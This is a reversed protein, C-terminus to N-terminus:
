PSPMLKHHFRTVGEAFSHIYNACNLIAVHPQTLQFYKRVWRRQLTALLVCFSIHCPQSVLVQKSTGVPLRSIRTTTITTYQIPSLFPGVRPAGQVAVVVVYYNGVCGHCPQERLVREGRGWYWLFCVLYCFLLLLCRIVQDVVYFSILSLVCLGLYSPVIGVSLFLSLFFFILCLVVWRGSFGLRM